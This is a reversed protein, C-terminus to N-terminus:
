LGEAGVPPIDTQTIESLQRTTLCSIASLRNAQREITKDFVNRAFRGNGFTRDKNAVAAAFLRQLATQADPTIHYDFQRARLNFIDTLDEVSYDDFNIYRNFRSKLGPNSDIFKHMDDTYGALIVVLRDRNDEMRKLLTAVAEHGFDPGDQSTLTYAEDVFLM